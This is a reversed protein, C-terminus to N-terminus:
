RLLTIDGHVTGQTGDALSYTILYVYIGTQAQGHPTEGDWILVSSETLLATKKEIIGGWRDFILVKDIRTVTLPDLSITFHDNIQDGNPTFVNPVYVM